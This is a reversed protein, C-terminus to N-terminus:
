LAGFPLDMVRGLTVLCLKNINVVLTFNYPKILSHEGNLFYNMFVVVVATHTRSVPVEGCLIMENKLMCCITSFQGYTNATLPLPTPTLLITRIGM